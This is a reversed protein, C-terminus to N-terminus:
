FKFSVQSYRSIFYTPYKKDLIFMKSTNVSNQHTFKTLFYLYTIIIM